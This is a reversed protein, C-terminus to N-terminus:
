ANKGDGEYEDLSPLINDPNDLLYLEGYVADLPNDSQVAGQYDAVIFLKDNWKADSVFQAHGARLRYMESGIGKKLTGYVFLYEKDQNVM